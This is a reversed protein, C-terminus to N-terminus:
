CSRQMAAVSPTVTAMSSQRATATSSASAAKSIKCSLSNGDTLESNSVLSWTAWSSHAAYRALVHWASAAAAPEPLKEFPAKISQWRLIVQSLNFHSSRKDSFGSRMSSHGLEFPAQDAKTVVM